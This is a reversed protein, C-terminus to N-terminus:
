KFTGCTLMTSGYYPNAVTDGKQLWSGPYMPCHVERVQTAGGASAKVKPILAESVAKYAARQEAIPTEATVKGAAEALPALSAIDAAAAADDKALKEGATLYTALQSELAPDACCTLPAPKPAPPPAAEAPPPPVVAAPSAPVPANETAGCAFLLVLSLM